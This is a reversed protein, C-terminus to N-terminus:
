FGGQRPTRSTLRIKFTGNYNAGAVNESTYRAQGLSTVTFDVGSFGHFSEYSCVWTDADQDYTLYIHGTENRVESDTRVRLVYDLTAAKTIIKDFIIDTLNAAAVQNNAITITRVLNTDNADEVMSSDITTNIGLDEVNQYNNDFRLNRLLTNEGTVGIKIATNGVASFGVWRGSNIDIGTHLIELGVTATGKTYTIGPRFFIGVNNTVTSITANVVVSQTVLIRNGAVASNLALQLTATMSPGSGVIFDFSAIDADLVSDIYKLWEDTRWFLWNMQERPPRENPLWGAQKKLASPEQTVNVLDPNGVTWELFSSPKPM